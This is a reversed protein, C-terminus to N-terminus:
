MKRLNKIGEEGGLREIFAGAEAKVVGTEKDFFVAASDCDIGNFVFAGRKFDPKGDGVESFGLTQLGFGAVPAFGQEEQLRGAFSEFGGGLTEAFAAKVDGGGAAFANGHFEKVRRFVLKIGDHSDEISLGTKGRSNKVFYIAEFQRYLGNHLNTTGILVFVVASQEFAGVENDARVNWGGFDGGAKAFNQGRATSKM